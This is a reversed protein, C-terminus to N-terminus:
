RKPGPRNKSTINTTPLIDGSSNFSGVLIADKLLYRWTKARSEQLNYPSPLPDRNDVNFVIDKLYQKSLWWSAVRQLTKMCAAICSVHQPHVLLVHGELVLLGRLVRTYFLTYQNNLEFSEQLKAYSLVKTCSQVLKYSFLRRQLILVRQWDHPMIMGDMMDIKPTFLILVVIGVPDMQSTYTYHMQSYIRIFIYM